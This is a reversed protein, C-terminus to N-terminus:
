SLSRPLPFPGKALSCSRIHLCPSLDLNSDLGGAPSCGAVELPLSLTLLQLELITGSLSPSSQILMLGDQSVLESDCPPWPTAAEPSIGQHESSVPLFAGARM